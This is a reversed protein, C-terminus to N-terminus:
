GLSNGHMCDGFLLPFPMAAIGFLNFWESEVRELEAQVWSKRTLTALKRVANKLPETEGKRLTVYKKINLLKRYFSPWIM